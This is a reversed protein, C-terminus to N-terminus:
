LAFIVVPVSEEISIAAQQRIPNFPSFLFFFSRKPFPSHGSLLLELSDHSPQAIIPFPTWLEQFQQEQPGNSPAM